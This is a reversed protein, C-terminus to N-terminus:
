DLDAESRLVRRRSQYEEASLEGQAFRRDLVELASERRTPSTRGRWGTRGFLLFIGALVLV